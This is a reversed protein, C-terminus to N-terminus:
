WRVIPDIGSFPEDLLLLTRASASSAALIASIKFAV